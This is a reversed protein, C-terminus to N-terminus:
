WERVNRLSAFSSIVVGEPPAHPDTDVTVTIRVMRVDQVPPPAGLATNANDYYVFLPTGDTTDVVDKAITTVTETATNYTVPVSATPEVVGMKIVSGDRFFRVREAADDGDVDTYVTLESSTAAAIIYAGNDAQRADRILDAMKTVAATAQQSSLGLRMTFGQLRWLSAFLVTVGLVILSFISIAIVMEILTMGKHRRAYM